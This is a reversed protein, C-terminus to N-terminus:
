QSTQHQQPGPNYTQPHSLSTALHTAPHHEVVQELFQDEEPTTAMGSGSSSRGDDAVAASQSKGRRSFVSNSFRQPTLAEFMSNRRKMSPASGKAASGAGASGGSSARGGGNSGSGFINKFREVDASNVKEKTQPIDNSTQSTTLCRLTKLSDWYLYLTRHLRTCRDTNSGDWSVMNHLVSDVPLGVSLMKAFKGLVPDAKMEAKMEAMDKV